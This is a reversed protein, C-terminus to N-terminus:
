ILKLEGGWDAPAIDAISQSFTRLHGGLDRCSYQREGFPYDAPERVIAAGNAPWALMAM